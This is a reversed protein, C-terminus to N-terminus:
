DELSIKEVWMGQGSQVSLASGCTRCILIPDELIAETGCDPCSVRLPDEEVQLSAERLLPDDTKLVDFHFSLIEPVVASLKGARFLVTRVAKQIKRDALEARVIRLIDEAIALEHM